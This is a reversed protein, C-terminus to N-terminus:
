AQRRGLEHTHRARGFRISRVVLARVHHQVEEVVRGLLLRFRVRQQWLRLSAEEDDVNGLVRADVDHSVLEREANQAGVDVQSNKLKSSKRRNENYQKAQRINDATQERAFQLGSIQSEPTAVNCAPPTFRARIKRGIEIALEIRLGRALAM